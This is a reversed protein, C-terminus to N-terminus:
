TKIHHKHIVDVIHNNISLEVLKMTPRERTNEIDEEHFFSFVQVIYRKRRARRCYFMWYKKTWMEKSKSARRLGIAADAVNNSFDVM